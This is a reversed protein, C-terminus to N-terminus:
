IDNNFYVNIIKDISCNDIYPNLIYMDEVVTKM